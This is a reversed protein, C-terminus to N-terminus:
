PRQEKSLVTRGLTTRDRTISYRATSDHAIRTGRTIRPAGTTRRAARAAPGTPTM